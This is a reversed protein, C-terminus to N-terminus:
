ASGEKPLEEPSRAFYRVRVINFAAVLVGTGGDGSYFELMAHPGHTNMMYSEATLTQYANNDLAIEWRTM